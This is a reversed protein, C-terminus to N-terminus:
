FKCFLRGKARSVTKDADFEDHGYLSKFLNHTEVETFETVIVLNSGDNGGGFGGRLWIM